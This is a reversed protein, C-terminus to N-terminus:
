TKSRQAALFSRVLMQTMWRDAEEFTSFRYVGRPCIGYDGRLKNASKLWRDAAEPSTDFGKRHGVIKIKPKKNDQVM